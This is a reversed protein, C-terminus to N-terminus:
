PRLATPPKAGPSSTPPGCSRRRLSAPDQAGRPRCWPAASPSLSFELEQANPETPHDAIDAALDAVVLRQPLAEGMKEGQRHPHAKLIVALATGLDIRQMGGLDLADAFAFSPRGILEAAFHRDGGRRCFGFAALEHQVGLRQMAVRKVAMRQSTDDGFHLLLGADLGAADMDVLPVATVIVFLLEPHPDAALHAPDRFRDTALHPAAGGDFRDDAMGLGLVAHAAIIQLSAVAVADISHEGGGAVVKAEEQAPESPKQAGQQLREECRERIWLRGLVPRM